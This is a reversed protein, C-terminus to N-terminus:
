SLLSPPFGEDSFFKKTKGHHMEGCIESGAGDNDGCPAGNPPPTPTKKLDFYGHNALHLHVATQAQLYVRTFHQMACLPQPRMKNTNTETHITPLFGM